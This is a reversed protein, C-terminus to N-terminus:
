KSKRNACHRQIAALLRCKLPEPVAQPEQAYQDKYVHITRKTTDYVVWCNPCNKVHNEVEDRTAQDATKDLCENLWGLFEKCTLL